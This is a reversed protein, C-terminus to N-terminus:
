RGPAALFDDANTVARAAIATAAARCGLPAFAGRRAMPKLDCSCALGCSVAPLRELSPRRSTAVAPATVCRWVARFGARHHLRGGTHM